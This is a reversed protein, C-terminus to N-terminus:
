KRRTYVGKMTVFEKGDPTTDYMELAWENESVIREVTRGRKYDGSAVDPSLTTYTYTKTAADYTGTGPLLGTGMNDIWVSVFKKKLKDYGVIGMGEFPMNNYTGKTTDVLYRGGLILKMESTGESLTAPAGPAVRMELKVKWQGEKYKLLEHEAGPTMFEIWKKMIAEQEASETKSEQAQALGSVCVSLCLAVLMQQWQMKM